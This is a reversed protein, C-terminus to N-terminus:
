RYSRITLLIWLSDFYAFHWHKSHKTLETSSCHYNQTARVTM